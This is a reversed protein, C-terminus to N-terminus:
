VGVVDVGDNELETEVGGDVDLVGKYAGVSGGGASGELEGKFQEVFHGV